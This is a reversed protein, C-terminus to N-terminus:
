KVKYQQVNGKMESLAVRCGVRTVAVSCTCVQVNVADCIEREGSVGQICM